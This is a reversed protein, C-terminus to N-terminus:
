VLCFYYHIYALNKKKKTKRETDKSPPMIKTDVNVIHFCYGYVFLVCKGTVGVIVMMMSVVFFYIIPLFDNINLVLTLTGKFDINKHHIMMM